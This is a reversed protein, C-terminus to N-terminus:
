TYIYIYICITGSNYLRHTLAVIINYLRHSGIISIILYCETIIRNNVSMGDQFEQFRVRLILLTMRAHSTTIIAIYVGAPLIRNVPLYVQSDIQYFM